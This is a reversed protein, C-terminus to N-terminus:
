LSGRSSLQDELRSLEVPQCNNDPESSTLVVNWIRFQSSIQISSFTITFGLKAKPSASEERSKPKRLIEAFQFPLIPQTICFAECYSVFNCTLYIEGLGHVSGFKAIFTYCNLIEPPQFFIKKRGTKFITFYHFLLPYIFYSSKRKLRRGYWAWLVIYSCGLPLLSVMLSSQARLIFYLQPKFIGLSQLKIEFSM